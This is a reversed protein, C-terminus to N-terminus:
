KQEDIENSQRKGRFELATDRALGDFRQKLKMKWSGFRSTM